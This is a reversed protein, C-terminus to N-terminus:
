AAELVFEVRREDKKCKVQTPVGTWVLHDPDDDVLFGNRVMWDVPWKLRAMANDQDMTHTHYITATIATVKRVLDPEDFDAFVSCLDMYARRERNKVRWHMRSNAINPPLPLVIKM